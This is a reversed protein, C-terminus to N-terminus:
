TLQGDFKFLIEAFLQPRLRLRVAPPRLVERAFADGLVEFDRGPMAHQDLAELRHILM